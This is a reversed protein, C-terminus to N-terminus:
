GICLMVGMYSHQKLSGVFDEAYCRKANNLLWWSLSEQTYIHWCQQATYIHGSAEAGWKFAAGTVQSSWLKRKVKMAWIMSHRSGQRSQTCCECSHTGIRTFVGLETQTSVDTESLLVTSNTLALSHEAVTYIAAPVQTLQSIIISNYNSTLVTCINAKGRMTSAQSPRRVKCGKGGWGGM